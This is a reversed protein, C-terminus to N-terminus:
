EFQQLMRHTRTKMDTIIGDLIRDGQYKGIFSAYTIDITNILKLCFNSLQKKLITSSIKIEKAFREWHREMIWEPRNEGGIKMALKQSLDEYINTSMMDYFPALRIQKVKYILSLNKAHADMNGILFNFFVWQLLQQLDKIPNASYKRVLNFCAALGPGGDAQYKLEHSLGMAQCFDEQHLRTLTDNILIRDYRKILLVKQSEKRIILVPPVNLGVAKALMMCFCENEISSLFHAMAPKLIANSPAGNTPIYFETDKYFIALKEQAGALSIRIGEQGALLPRRPIHIILDAIQKDSLSNYIYQDPSEPAKSESLISIAGACEGGIRKLLMFDNKDSIGLQKSILKRVASEPLLNSFFSKVKNHFFVDEQLPLSISIQFADLSALWNKSYEFSFERKDNIRLYGVITQGFFINLTEL